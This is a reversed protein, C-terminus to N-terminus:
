KPEAAFLGLAKKLIDREIKVKALERRMREFAAPSVADVDSTVPQGSSGDRERRWRGLLNATIGLDHAIAAPSAGPQSALKIAERKFEETFRRRQM